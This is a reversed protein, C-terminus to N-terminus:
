SFSSNDDEDSSDEAELVNFWDFLLLTELSEDTNDEETSYLRPVFNNFNFARPNIESLPQRLQPKPPSISHEPTIPYPSWLKLIKEVGTSCLLPIKPHSAINNVISRHGVLVHNASSIFGVTERNLVKTVTNRVYTPQPQEILQDPINKYLETSINSPINWIYIKFDDSGSILYEDNLGFTISKLTCSNKYNDNYFVVLPSTNELEFLM